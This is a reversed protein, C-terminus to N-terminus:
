LVEVKGGAAEIKEVAGRSFKHARVTLSKKLEGEGLIKIGTLRRSVVGSEVLIEPTVVAGEEFRDLEGVNVEAYVRKFVNTFGRKPTRRYIPMQGGEFGPGFGVGARAKQGKHGRGATKGHGSGPGRGVRKPKKRSGLAPRLEHLKM